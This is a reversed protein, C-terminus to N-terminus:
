YFDEDDEIKFLKFFFLIDHGKPLNKNRLILIFPRDVIFDVSNKDKSKSFEYVYDIETISSAQTDEENM